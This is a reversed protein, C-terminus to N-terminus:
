RGSVKPVSNSARAPACARGDWLALTKRPRRKM